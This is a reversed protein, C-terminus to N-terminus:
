AETVESEKDEEEPDVDARRFVSRVSDNYIKNCLQLKSTGSEGLYIGKIKTVQSCETHAWHTLPINLLVLAKLREKLIPKHCIVCLNTTAPSTDKPKSNGLISATTAKKIPM